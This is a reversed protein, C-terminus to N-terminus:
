PEPKYTDDFLMQLRDYASQSSNLVTNGQGASLAVDGSGFNFVSRQHLCTVVTNYYTEEGPSAVMVDFAFFGRQNVADGGFVRFVLESNPISGYTSPMGDKIFAAKYTWAEQDAIEWEWGKSTTM